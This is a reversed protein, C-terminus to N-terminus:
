KTKFRCELDSFRQGKQAAYQFTAKTIVVDEEVIEEFFDRKAMEEASYGLVEQVRDSIFLPKGALTTEWVYKGPVDVVERFRAESLRLKEETQDKIKYASSLEGHNVEIQAILALDRLINLDEMSPVRPQHDIISLTGVVSGDTAAIPSGVYFRIFPKGTVFQSDVFRPDLKADPVVLQKNDLITYGCFSEDRPTEKADTGYSSKIFQRHEDLLVILAIPVSLVRTALRTIRDFREEPPTDLLNLARVAALRQAENAPLPAAAM